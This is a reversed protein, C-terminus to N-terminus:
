KIMELLKGCKPYLLGIDYLDQVSRYTEISSLFDGFPKMILEVPRNTKYALRSDVCIGAKNGFLHVAEASSSFSPYGYSRMELHFLGMTEHRIFVFDNENTNRSM